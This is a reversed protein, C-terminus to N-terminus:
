NSLFKQLGAKILALAFVSAFAGTLGAAMAATMDSLRVGYTNAIFIGLFFGTAIIFMNGIAGFGDEGMVGDLALGVIFSLMSVVAVAMLLSNTDLNWLMRLGKRFDRASLPGWRMRKDTQFL